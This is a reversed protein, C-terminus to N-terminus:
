QFHSGRALNIDTGICELLMSSHYLPKLRPNTAISPAPITREKKAIKIAGLYGDSEPSTTQIFEESGEHRVSFSIVIANSESGRDLCM